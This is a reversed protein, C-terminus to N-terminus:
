NVGCVLHVTQSKSAHVDVVLPSGCGGSSLSDSTGQSGFLTFEGVPLRVDFHGGSDTRVHAVATSSSTLDWTVRGRYAWIVGRVPRNFGPAPGGVIRYDGSVTGSEHHSGCGSMAPSCILAALTV